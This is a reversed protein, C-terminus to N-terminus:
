HQPHPSDSSHGYDMSIFRYISKNLSGATQSSLLYMSRQLHLDPKWRMGLLFVTCASSSFDALDNWKTKGKPEARGEEKKAVLLTLLVRNSIILWTSQLEKVVKLIQMVSFSSLTACSWLPCLVKPSAAQSQTEAEQKDRM